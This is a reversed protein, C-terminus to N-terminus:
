RHELSFHMLCNLGETSNRTPRLISLYPPKALPLLLHIKLAEDVFMLNSSNQNFSMFFPFSTLEAGVGPLIWLSILILVNRGEPTSVPVLLDVNITAFRLPKFKFTQRQYERKTSARLMAVVRLPQKPSALVLFGICVLNLLFSIWYSEQTWLTMSIGGKNKGRVRGDEANLKM